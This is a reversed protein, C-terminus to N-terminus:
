PGPVVLWSLHLQFMAAIRHHKHIQISYWLTRTDSIWSQCGPDDWTLVGDSAM